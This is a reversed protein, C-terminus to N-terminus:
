VDRGKPGKPCTRRNHGRDGCGRCRNNTKAPRRWKNACRKCCFEGARGRRVHPLPCWQTGCTKCTYIAPSSKWAREREERQRANLEDREAASMAARRKRMKERGSERLRALREGAEAFVERRWKKVRLVNCMAEFERAEKRERWQAIARARGDFQYGEALEGLDVDIRELRRKGDSGQELSM